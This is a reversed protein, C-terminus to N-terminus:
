IMDATIEFNLHLTESSWPSQNPEASLAEAYGDASLQVSVRNYALEASGAMHVWQFNEAGMSCVPAGVLLLQRSDYVESEVGDAAVVLAVAAGSMGAEPISVPQSLLYYSIRGGAEIAEAELRELEQVASQLVALKQTGLRKSMGNQEALREVAEDYIISKFEPEGYKITLTEPITMAKPHKDQCGVLGLLLIGACALSIVSKISQKWQLM